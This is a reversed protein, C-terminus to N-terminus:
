TFVFGNQLILTIMWFPNTTGRGRGAVESAEISEAATLRTVSADKQSSSTVLATPL